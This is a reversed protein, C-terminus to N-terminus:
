FCNCGTELSDSCLASTKMCGMPIWSHHNDRSLGLKRDHCQSWRWLDKLSNRSFCAINVSNIQCCCLNFQSILLAATIECPVILVIFAGSYFLTKRLSVPEMNIHSGRDPVTKRWIYLHMVDIQLWTSHANDILCSICYYFCWFLVLSRNVIFLAQMEAGPVKVLTKSWNGIRACNLTSLPLSIEPDM